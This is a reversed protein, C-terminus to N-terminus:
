QVLAGYSCRLIKEFASRSGAEMYRQILGNIGDKQPCFVSAWLLVSMIGCFWFFKLYKEVFINYYNYLLIIYRAGRSIYLYFYLYFVRCFCKNKQYPPHNTFRGQQTTVILTKFKQSGERFLLLHCKRLLHCILINGLM